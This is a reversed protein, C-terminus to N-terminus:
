TNEPRSLQAFNTPCYCRLFACFPTIAYYPRMAALMFLVIRLLRMSIISPFFAVVASRSSAQLSSHFSSIEARFPLGRPLGNM